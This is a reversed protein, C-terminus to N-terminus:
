RIWRNYLTSFFYDYNCHAGIIIDNYNANEGNAVNDRYRVVHYDITIADSSM